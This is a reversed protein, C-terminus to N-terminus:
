PTASVPTILLLQGDNKVKVKCGLSKFAKITATCDRPNDVLVKIETQGRRAELISKAGNLADEKTM